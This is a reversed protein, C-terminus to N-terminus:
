FKVFISVQFNFNLWQKMKLKIDKFILHASAKHCVHSKVMVRDM